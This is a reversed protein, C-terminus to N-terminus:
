FNSIIVEKTKSNPKKSNIRRKCDIIDIKCIDKFNKIVYNVYSNSMIFKNNNKYLIKCNDFLQNHNKINFGKKNYKVFSTSNIPYYPPDLYTFDGNKINKMSENFDLRMFKVDKILKHIYLLHEKNIITPNKYNGFPVNFGNPGTRYMGRFCTKNIFIFLASQYYRDENDKNFEKRLWYYYSEKSLIAEEFTIPKRNGKIILCSNYIDVLKILTNYLKEPEEQICKYLIILYKNCDYAYINNVKIINNKKLELLGLLVSGGGIFIEHYDNMDKPFKDLLTKLIQTKGGVWKIIPKIFKNM